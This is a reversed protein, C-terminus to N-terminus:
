TCKASLVEKSKSLYSKSQLVEQVQLPTCLTCQPIPLKLLLIWTNRGGSTIAKFNVYYLLNAFLHRHACRASM